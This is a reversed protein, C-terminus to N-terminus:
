RMSLNEDPNTNLLGLWVEAQPHPSDTAIVGAIGSCAAADADSVRQNTCTPHAFDGAAASSMACQDRAVKGVRDPPSIPCRPCLRMVGTGIARSPAIRGVPGGKPRGSSLSKGARCTSRMRDLDAAAAGDNAIVADREIRARGLTVCHM